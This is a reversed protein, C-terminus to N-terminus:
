TRYPTYGLGASVTRCTECIMEALFPDRDPRMRNAPGSISAAAIVQGTYDYIPAAVCRVNEGAESNDIAYGRQRTRALEEEFAEVTTITTPSLRPLGKHEVVSRWVSDPMFALMAKGLATAHAPARKGIQTYMGVTQLGEVRDIYLIEDNDFVALHVTENVRRMLAKMQPMAQEALNLRRIVHGHLHLFRLGLGYLRTEPDQEVYGLQVLTSLLRHATGLPLGSAESLESISRGNNSQALLELLAFARSVSQVADM